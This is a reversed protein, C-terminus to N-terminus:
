RYTFENFKNLLKWITLKIRYWLSVIVNSSIKAKDNYKNLLEVYVKYHALLLSDEGNIFANMTTNNFHIFIVPFIGNILVQNNVKTRKCIDKNWEALNCGKHQLVLTDPQIIPFLDLYKQDDYLGRLFNRECRYLCCNSWWNLTTIAKNNVAIFGANYLGIKFNAELWNQKHFPNRSYNHATLLVSHNNLYDFLFFFDNFFAIDNDVYIIKDSTENQLLYKLFVSKLSWRLKDKNNDYKSMIKKSIEDEFYDLNYFITKQEHEYSQQSTKYNDIILVHLVVNKSILLLSDLLAYVKYLHSKTTITCFHFQM